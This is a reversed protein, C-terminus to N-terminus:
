EGASSRRDLDALILELKKEIPEYFKAEAEDLYVNIRLLEAQEEESLSSGFKKDVLEAHRDRAQDIDVPQAATDLLPAVLPKMSLWDVLKLEWRSRTLCEPVQGSKWKAPDVFLSTTVVHAWGSRRNIDMPRLTEVLEVAVRRGPAYRKCQVLFNENSESNGGVAILDIDGDRVFQALKVECGLEDFIKVVVEEFQTPALHQLDDRRNWLSAMVKQKLSRLGSDERRPRSFRVSLRDVLNHLGDVYSKSFDVPTRLGLSEPLICSEKLAPLITVGGSPAEAALAKAVDEKFWTRNQATPTIVPVFYTSSAIARDIGEELKSGGTGHARELDLYTVAEYGGLRLDSALRQAFDSDHTSHNIFISDM